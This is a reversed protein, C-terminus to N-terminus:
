TPLDGPHILPLIKELERHYDIEDIHGTRLQEELEDYRLSAMAVRHLYPYTNKLLDNPHRKFFEIIWQQNEHRETEVPIPGDWMLLPPPEEVTIHVIQQLTSKRGLRYALGIAVIAFLIVSFVM